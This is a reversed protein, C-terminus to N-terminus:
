VVKRRKRKSITVEEQTEQIPQNGNGCRNGFGNRQRRQQGHNWVHNSSNYIGNRRQFFITGNGHYQGGDWFGKYITYNRYYMEAYGSYTQKVCNGIYATGLHSLSLMPGEIFNEFWSGTAVIGNSLMLIGVGHKQQNKTFGYYVVGEGYEEICVGTRSSKIWRATIQFKGDMGYSGVSLLGEHNLGDFSFGNQFEITGFGIPRGKSAFGRYEKDCTIIKNYQDKSKDTIAVEGEYINQEYYKYGGKETINDNLEGVFWQFCDNEPKPLTTALEYFLLMVNEEFQLKNINLKVTTINGVAPNIKSAPSVMSNHIIDIDNQGLLKSLIHKEGLKALDYTKCNMKANQITHYKKVNPKITLGFKPKGEEDGLGIFTLFGIQFDIMYANECFSSLTHRNGSIRLKM